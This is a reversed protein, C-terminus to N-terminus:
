SLVACYLEVYVLVTTTLTGLVQCRSCVTASEYLLEMYEYLLEFHVMAQVLFALLGIAVYGVCLVRGGVRWCAELVDAVIGVFLAHPAVECGLLYSRCAVHGRASSYSCQRNDAQSVKVAYKGFLSGSSKAFQSSSVDRKAGASGGQGFLGLVRSAMGYERGVALGRYVLGKGFYAMVVTSRSHDGRPKGAGDATGLGALVGQVHVCNHIRPVGYNHSQAANQNQTNQGSVGSWGVGTLHWAWVAM